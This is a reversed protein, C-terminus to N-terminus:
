AATVGWGVELESCARLYELANRVRTAKCKSTLPCHDWAQLANVFLRMFRLGSTEGAPWFACQQFKCRADVPLVCQPLVGFSQRRSLSHMSPLGTALCSVLCMYTM